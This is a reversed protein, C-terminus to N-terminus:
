LCDKSIEFLGTDCDNVLFDFIDFNDTSFIVVIFTFINFIGQHTKQNVKERSAGQSGLYVFM